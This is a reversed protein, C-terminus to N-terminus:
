VADCQRQITTMMDVAEATSLDRGEFIKFASAFRRDSILPWYWADSQLPGHEDNEGDNHSLEMALTHPAFRFATECPDFGFVRSALFLHGINMNLGIIEPSFARTFIILEEPHQLILQRHHAVSGQTEVALLVGASRAYASLQRASEMFLEFCSCSVSRKELASAFNFDYCEPGLSEGQPDTAFGPHFTFLRAGIQASFHINARLICLSKKRIHPNGSAPNIIFRSSRAPFNNHVLYRMGIRRLAKVLGKEPRHTSGLEVNTVGHRILQSLVRTVPMGLKAFTTSLFFNM